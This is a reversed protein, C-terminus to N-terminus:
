NTDAISLEGDDTHVVILTASYAPLEDSGNLSMQGIPTITRPDDATFQFGSASDAIGDILLPVAMETKNVVVVTLPGDSGQTAAYVSVKTEDTSAAYVSTDGFKGGIGNYNRFLRFAWFLPMDAFEAEPTSVYDAYPEWLTAMDLGERGFIGLADIQALAGVGTTAGGFHYETIALRTGPYFENVASRLRPIVASGNGFLFDRVVWWDAPAYSSDWLHRTSELRLEDTGGDYVREDYFNVALRDLIRRGSSQEADAMATLYDSLFYSVDGPRQGALLEDSSVYYSSAGWLVPGIVEATPDTSKIARGYRINKEIIEARSMPTAQVDGHTSHWLGPENGLAYYEVGGAAATGHAAVLSTVWDAVFQEDVNISAIAPDLPGPFQGNRYGNGCENETDIWHFVSDDQRGVESVPYSCVGERGSSVWGLMPVTLISDTGDRQNETEFVSDAGPEMPNNTFYWDLAQNSSSTRYNYREVANGGWRSVPVDLEERLTDPAFNIGYIDESIRRPFEVTSTFVTGSAPDVVRREISAPGISVTLRIPTDAGPETIGTIRIDDLYVGGSDLESFQQWWVGAIQQEVGLDTLPIQYSQWRGGVPTIVKPRGDGVGTASTVVVIETDLESYISFELVGDDPVTLPANVGIYIGEFGRMEGYLSYSGASVRDTAAIDTNTWSWNEVGAAPADDYLWISDTSQASALSLCTSLLLCKFLFLNLLLKCRMCLSPDIM